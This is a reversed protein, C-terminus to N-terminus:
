SGPTHAPQHDIPRCTYPQLNERRSKGSRRLKKECSRWESLHAETGIFSRMDFGGPRAKMVGMVLSGAGRAHRLVDQRAGLRSAERAECENSGCCMERGSRKAEVRARVPEESAGACRGGCRHLRSRRPQAGGAGVNSHNSSASSVM